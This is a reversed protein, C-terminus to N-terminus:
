FSSGTGGFPWPPIPGNDVVVNDYRIGLIPNDEDCWRERDTSCRERHSGCDGGVVSTRRAPLYARIVHQRERGCDLIVDVRYTDDTENRCWHGTCSVWPALVVTDAAAAQPAAVGVAIAFLPSTIGLLATLRRPM